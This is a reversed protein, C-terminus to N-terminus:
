TRAMTSILDGIAVHIINCSLLNNIMTTFVPQVSCTGSNKAFEIVSSVM